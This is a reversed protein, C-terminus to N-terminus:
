GVFVGGTFGPLLDFGQLLGFGNGSYAEVRSGGGEGSGVLIDTNRDGNLNKAAVRVGGRNNIDGLFDNFLPTSLAATAGRQLMTQADLILVRPGGGPGAGGILDAFGDGNVDGVAVYAGNRLAEEFLFFDGIVNLKTGLNLAAGDYISIRPGGGFGASVVLDAFGDGNIDGMAARAGGRFNPDDIGFFNAVQTFTGGKIITVRPGGGQDPTIVIDAIGDGTLDGTSVFVGGKFTEFPRLTLITRNTAGNIIQVTATITPGSGVVYDPVGDGTVDAVSLRIGGTFGQSGGDVEGAYGPPFPLLTTLGNGNASYVNVLSSGESIINGAADRVSADTAAAFVGTLQETPTERPPLASIVIPASTGNLAGSTVTVLYAGPTGYTVTFTARGDTLAPVAPNVTAGSGGPNVTLPGDVDVINGNADTVTVTVTVPSGVTFPGSGVPTVTVTTASGPNVAITATNSQIPGTGPVNAPRPVSATVTVTGSAQTTVTFKNNGSATDIPRATPSAPSVAAGGYTITAMGAFNTPNGFQDQFTLTYEVTNPSNVAASSPSLTASFAADATVNTTFGTANVAGTTTVQIPYSGAATMKIYFTVVGAVLTPNAIPVTGAPDSFLQIAGPGTTTVTLASNAGTDRTGNPNKQEVTVQGVQGATLNAPFSTAELRDSVADLAIQQVYQDGQPAAGPEGNTTNNNQDMRNGSPDTITPIQNGTPDNGVTFRYQQTASATQQQFEVRYRNPVGAVPSIAIITVDGTPVGSGNLRQLRFNEPRLTSVDVPGSFQVELVSIQNAPNSAPQTPISVSTVIPGKIFTKPPLEDTLRIAWSGRGYTSALLLNLGGAEYQGSTRNLNGISLDLDTVEVTPLYGGDATAGESNISPFVRWTAGFDDSKFVGGVGGVYLEPPTPVATTPDAFRWDVALTNIARTGTSPDPLVPVQDTADGFAARTLSFLNGTINTWPDTTTGDAKYYVGANTVVYVERSPAAPNPIIKRIPSGDPSGINTWSTGGTTTSFVQGNANGVYIFNNVLSPNASNFAGFALAGPAANGVVGPAAIELWSQGGTTSRFVRGASSQIVLANPNVPNIAFTVGGQVLWQGGFPQFDNAQILGNTRPIGGGFAPEGSSRGPIFERLFEQPLGGTILNNAVYEDIGYDTPSRYQFARGSGTADVEVWAGDGTPGRWNTNGNSLVKSDSVLFGNDQAMGYFLAGAVDAALQSPQVAGSYLQTLQLNGNRSGFALQDFGSSITLTGDGPDVGTYVGQDGSFIFRTQGTVPDLLPFIQHINSMGNRETPITLSGNNRLNGPFLADFMPQWFVDTGNNTMSSVNFVQLTSNTTFPNNPDRSANLFDTGYTNFTFGKVLRGSSGIAARPVLGGTTSSQIGGAPDSNNFNTFNQTDKIKTLDIKMMGGVFSGAGVGGALDGPFSTGVGVGSLYIIAPNLPDVSIAVDYNGSDFIPEEFLDYDARTEDNTANVGFQPTGPPIIPVRVRTWNLGADKTQYLGRVAGTPTVAIAYLWDKYFFNRLPDNTLAPAAIAIRGQAGNPTLNGGQVPTLVVDGSPPAPPEVDRVNPLQGSLNGTMLTMGAASPASDTLFVGEGQFSAYMRQLNGDTVTTQAIPDFTLASGAALIVDTADGARVREWNLGGNTSRWVGNAGAGGGSVAMYVLVGGEPTRNPDVVIKFGSTGVFVRDRGPDSVKGVTGPAANPDTSANNTSDLVAWTKGGDTSRLVGVGTSTRSRDTLESTFPLPNATNGEGTLAFVITQSPDNNQPFLALSQISIATTPGFDTLPVYHPGDIDTTLFNTTKWVGGSAGAVYVTNGSPDSPDVVASTVRGATATENNSSSVPTWADRSLENTADTVYVKFGAQFRDAVREGLGSQPVSRPLTLSWNTIQAAAGSVNATGSNTVRLIWTGKASIPRTPDALVSLPTQPTYGFASPFPAVGDLISPVNPDGVLDVLRTNQFNGGGSQNPPANAPRDDAGNYLLISNIGSGDPPLLELKLKWVDPYNINLLVQIKNLQDQTIVFDDSIVIAMEAVTTDVANPRDPTSADTAPLIAVPQSTSPFVREVIDSDTTARGTVLDIGANLSNDMPLGSGAVRINRAASPTFDIVYQGAPQGLPFMFRYTNGGQPVIVYGTTEGAPGIVRLVDAPTLAGNISSFTVEVYPPPTPTPPAPTPPVTLTGVFQPRDTARIAALTDNAIRPNSGFEIAYPGSLRVGSGVVAVGRLSDPNLQITYDGPVQQSPFTLVYNLPGGNLVAGSLSIPGNPGFVRTVDGITLAGNPPAAALSFPISTFTGNQTSLITNPTATIDLTYRGPTLPTPLTLTFATGGGSLTAGALSIVGDPGTLRLDSLRPNITPPVTLNFNVVSQTTAVDFVLQPQDFTVRFLRAAPANAPLPARSENVATVTVGALSVGGIPGTIRLVNGPTFSAPNIDRDFRVYVERITSNLATDDVIFVQNNLRVSYNGAPLTSGFQLQFQKTGQNVPNLPFINTPTIPGNPGVVSTIGALTLTNVDVERDLTVTLITASTPTASVATAIPGGAYTVTYNGPTPASAFVLRFTRTAGNVVNTYEIGTPTVSGAPGVVSTIGALTLTNIDVDRDLVVDMRLQRQAPTLSTDASPAVASVSTLLPGGAYTRVVHAGPAVIPRSAPDFPGTFPTKSLSGPVTYVDQATELQNSDADQDMGNGLRNITIPNGNTDRFKLTWSNLTGTDTPFVDEIRLTWVGSIPLGAFESLGRPPNFPDDLEYPAYIGNFNNFPTTIPYPSHNAAPANDSIRMNIINDQSGGEQNVLILETPLLPGAGDPDPGILTVILDSLFTHSINLGVQLDQVTPNGELPPIVIQSESIGPDELTLPTDASGFVSSTQSRVLDTLTPDIAYSYTGVATQPTRFQVFFSTAFYSGNDTYGGIPVVGQLPVLAGQTGTDLLGTPARFRVEIDDAGFAEKLRVPTSEAVANGQTTGPGFYVPRDFVVRFGDIQRTGDAAFTDNYTTRINGFADTIFEQFGDEDLILASGDDTGTASRESVSGIDSEIIRPGATSRVNSTFIGAGGSNNNGSWFPKIVGGFAVVSQRVGTGGYQYVGANYTPMAGVNTPVPELDVRKGTIADIAFKKTNVPAGVSFTAGGDISTAVYTAVRTNNADTRSDYWMVVVMGTAPDVTVTPQYQTRIGESFNDAASDLNVRLPIGWTAGNDDSSNIFINTNLPFQATGPTTYAVYMRGAFRSFSGLSNDYAVSVGPGIGFTPSVSTAGAATPFTQDGGLPGTTSTAQNTMPVTTIRAPPGGAGPALSVGDNTVYRDAGLRGGVDSNDLQSTFTLSWFQLQQDVPVTGNGFPSPIRDNRTDTIELRWYASAGSNLQDATRGYFTALSGTEPRFSGSFDDPNNPDHIHRAAEQSFVTGVPNGYRANNRVVDGQIGAAVGLDAGSLGAAVQIGYNVANGDGGTRNRVLTVATGDPALLRIRLHNLNPHSLAITVDLDDLTNFVGGNGGAPTFPTLNVNRLEFTTVGSPDFTAPSVAIGADNIASSGDTSDPFDNSRFTYSASVPGNAVNLTSKIIQAGATGWVVSMQGPTVLGNQMTAPTFVVQPAAGSTNSDAGTNGAGLFHGGDNVPVPTSFLFAAQRPNSASVAANPDPRDILAVPDVRGVAMMVANPTYGLDGVANIPINSAIAPASSVMNWAVFITDGGGAAVFPDNITEGTVPDTYTGLNTDVGISPNAPRNVVTGNDIWQYLVYARNDSLTTTQWRESAPTAPIDDWDRPRDLDVYTFTEANRNIDFREVILAGSTKTANHQLYAIYVSGSRTFAITPESANTYGRNQIPPGAVFPSAITPDLLAGKTTDGQFTQPVNSQAPNPNYPSNTDRLKTWSVGGDFSIQALIGAPQAVVMAMTNPNTPDVVVQPAFGGGANPVAISASSLVAPTTAPVVRHEVEELRLKATPRPASVRSGRSVWKRLLQALSKNSKNSM